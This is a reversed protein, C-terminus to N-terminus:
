GKCDDDFYNFNVIKYNYFVEFKLDVGLGVDFLYNFGFLVFLIVVVFYIDIEFFFLWGFEESIVKIDGYFFLM